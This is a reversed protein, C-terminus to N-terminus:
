RASANQRHSQSLPPHCLANASTSRNSCSPMVAQLSTSPQRQPAPATSVTVATLHTGAFESSPVPGSAHRQQAEKSGNRLRTPEFALTYSNSSRPKSLSKLHEVYERKLSKPGDIRVTGGIGAAWGSFQESERAKTVAKLPSAGKDFQEAADGFCDMTIEMKDNEVLLTATVPEGDFRGLFRLMQSLNPLGCWSFSDLLGGNALILRRLTHRAEAHPTEPVPVACQYQSLHGYAVLNQQRGLRVVREIGVRHLRSRPCSARSRAARPCRTATSSTRGRGHRRTQPWM